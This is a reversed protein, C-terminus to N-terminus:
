NIMHVRYLEFGAALAETATRFAITEAVNPGDSKAQLVGRWRLDDGVRVSVIGEPLNPGTVKYSGQTLEDAKAQRQRFWFPLDLKM